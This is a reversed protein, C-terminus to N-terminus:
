IKNLQCTFSITEGSFQVPERDEDEIYFQVHSLIPKNLNKFLRIKSKKYIKGGLPSSLAFSYLIPERVCKVISGKVCDRQLIVEEIGTINFPRNSKYSGEIM